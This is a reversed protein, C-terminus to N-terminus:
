EESNIGGPPNHHIIGYRTLSVSAIDTHHIKILGRNELEVLLVLLSDQPMSLEAIIDKVLIRPHPNLTRLSMEKIREFVNESTAM